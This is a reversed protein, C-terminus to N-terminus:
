KKRRELPIENLRTSRATPGCRKSFATLTDGNHHRGLRQRVV